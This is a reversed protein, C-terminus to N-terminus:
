SGCHVAGTGNAELKGNWVLEGSVAICEGPAKLGVPGAFITYNSTQDNIAPDSDEQNDKTTCGNGPSTEQCITIDVKLHQVQGAAQKTPYLWACNFQSSRSYYLYIVGVHNGSGFPADIFYSELFGGPHACEQTNISTSASAARSSQVNLALLTSAILAALLFLFVYRALRSEMKLHYM